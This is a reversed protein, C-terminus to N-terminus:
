KRGRVTKPKKPLHTTSVPKGKAHAKTKGIVQQKAPKASVKPRAVQAGTTVTDEEHEAAKPMALAGISCFCFAAATLLNFVTGTKAKM